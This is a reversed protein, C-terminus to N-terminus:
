LHLNNYKAWKNETAHLKSEDISRTNINIYIYMNYIVCIYVSVIPNYQM